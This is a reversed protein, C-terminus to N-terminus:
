GGRAPGPRASPPPPAPRRPAPRRPAARSPVSRSAGGQVARPAASPDWGGEGGRGCLPEPREPATTAVAGTRNQIARRLGGYSTAAGLVAKRDRPLGPAAGSVRVSGRRSGEWVARSGRHLGGTYSKCLGWVAESEGLLGLSGQAAEGYLEGWAAGVNGWHLGEGWERLAGLRQAAGDWPRVCGGAAGTCGRGLGM